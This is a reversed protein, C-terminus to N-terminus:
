VADQVLQLPFIRRSWSSASATELNIGGGLGVRTVGTGRHAHGRDGVDQEVLEHVEVGLVGVPNVPVTKNERIDQESIGAHGPATEVQSRPNGYCSCWGSLSSRIPVAVTAHQLISQQVQEAVGERHVVQLVETYTGHQTLNSLCRVLKSSLLEVARGGTVGLGVVSGTDLDGSTGKALTEGVGDTQGNGLSVGSTDEVLGAVLEEVVVGVGEEAIAAGHLTDGTLGGGHSTVQLQAVENSDIVVVM